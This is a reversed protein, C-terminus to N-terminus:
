KEESVKKTKKGDESNDEVVTKIKKVGEPKEESVKKTKKGDESNDEVVTKIKKVGEPKQEAVEKLQELGQQLELAFKGRALWNSVREWPWYGGVYSHHWRVMTGENAPKVGLSLDGEAEGQSIKYRIEQKDADVNTIILNGTKWPRTEGMAKQSYPDWDDWQEVTSMHSWVKEPRAQIDIFRILEVKQPLIFLGLFLAFLSCFIFISIKKIM